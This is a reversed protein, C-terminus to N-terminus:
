NDPVSRVMHGESTGKPLRRIINYIYDIAIITCASPLDKTEHAESYEFM